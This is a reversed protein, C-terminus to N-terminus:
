QSVSVTPGGDTQWPTETLLAEEPFSQVTSAEFIPCINYIVIPIAAAEISHATATLMKSKKKKKM